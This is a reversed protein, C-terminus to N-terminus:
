LENSTKKLGGFLYQWKTKPNETDDKICQTQLTFFPM